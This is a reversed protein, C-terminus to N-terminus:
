GKLLAKRRLGLLGLMGAGFLWVAAPVPVQSIKDKNSMTVNSLEGYGNWLMDLGNYYIGDNGRYYLAAKTIPQQNDFFLRFYVQHQVGPITIESSGVPAWASNDYKYELVPSPYTGSFDLNFVDFTIQGDGILGPQDFMWFSAEEAVVLAAKVQPSIGLVLLTIIAVMKIKNM